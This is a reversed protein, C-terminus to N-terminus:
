PVLYVPAGGLEFAFGGAAVALPSGLMDHAVRGQTDITLHETQEGNRWLVTLAGAPTEFDIAFRGDDPAHLSEHPGIPTADSAVSALFAMANGAPKPDIPRTPDASGYRYLGFDHEPPFQGHNAGDVLNYWCLPDLGLATGLVLARVLFAAQDSESIPRYSPWGFETAALPLEVDHLALVRQLDDLMGGLARQGEEDHEPAVSPPYLPYPHIGLADIGDLAGPRATLMDHSFELAGNILQPHFFLGGSILTCEPCVERIAPAAAQLRDALHSADGHLDPKFFRYGANPENYLEYSTIRGAYHAAVARAFAGFDAPDDPPFKDDDTTQSSAWPVGYALMALVEVGAAAAADVLPDYASFDFAGPASEIKSWTFDVRTRRVGAAALLELQRVRLADAAAGEGSALGQAVCLRDALPRGGARWNWHSAAAGITDAAPTCIATEGPELQIEVVRQSTCREDPECDDDVTCRRPPSVEASKTCGTLSGCLVALVLLAPSAKLL